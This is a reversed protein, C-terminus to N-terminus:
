KVELASLKEIRAMTSNLNFLTEEKNLRVRTLLLEADNVETLTVKGAKLLDQHMLFSNRAHKVSELDAKLTSVHEYYEEIAISLSLMLSERVKQHILKANNNDLRAQKLQEIKEGGNFIPFAVVIGAVGYDNFDDRDFRKSRSAGATTWSGYMSIVPMFEAKKINIIDETLEIREELAKITPATENFSKLYKTRDIDSYESSFKNKLNVQLASEVGIINKLTKMASNHAIKAKNVMPTRSSIDALIKINDRKSIRGSSSNKELISKNEIANDLSKQMISLAERAFLTAYYNVKVNFIIDIEEIKKNLRSINTGKRTAKIANSVRGFSCLLQTMNINGDAEYNDMLLLPNKPYKFNNKWTSTSNLHPFLDAKTERDRSESIFIENERIKYDESAEFAMKIAKFIDIDVSEQSFANASFQAILMMGLISLLLKRKM